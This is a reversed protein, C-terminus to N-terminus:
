IREIGGWFKADEAGRQTSFFAFGGASPLQERATPLKIKVSLACLPALFAFNKSLIIEKKGIQGSGM